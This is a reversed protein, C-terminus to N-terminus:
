RAPRVIATSCCSCAPRRPPSGSPRAPCTSGSCTPSGRWRRASRPRSADAETSSAAEVALLAITAAFGVGAVMRAARAQRPSLAFVVIAAAILPAPILALQLGGGLM